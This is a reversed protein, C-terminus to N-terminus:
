NEGVIAPLFSNNYIEQMHRGGYCRPTVALLIHRSHRMLEYVSSNDVEVVHVRIQSAKYSAQPIYM